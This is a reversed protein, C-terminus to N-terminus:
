SANAYEDLSRALRRLADRLEKPKYVVFAFGLAVLHHALWDVNDTSGRLIVGGETPELLGFPQRMVGQASALDTKLLVEFTRERPVSAISRTVYGVADFRAPRDFRTATPAVQQVRDLRFSRLDNRLHCHGVVYWENQVYALSYPDFDRESDEDKYSRYHLHVTRQQQAASGLRAMVESTSAAQPTNWELAITESLARVRAKLEHPMVQELKARASEAAQASEALGLHRAALLGIALAAGEENTFMLPPLKFGASLEYAGHRGREAVIPIGLDQLMTIYRRLTRINVELRAALEPGTLRGHAQLLELVALVRTTPHYM